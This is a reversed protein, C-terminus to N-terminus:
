PAMITVTIPFSRGLGSPPPTVTGVQKVAEALKTDLALNASQHILDSRMIRGKNNLLLQVSVTHTGAPTGAPAKVYRQVERKVRDVYRVYASEGALAPDDGIDPRPEAKRRAPPM